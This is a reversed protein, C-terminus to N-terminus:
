GRVARMVARRELFSNSRVTRFCHDFGFLGVPVRFQRRFHTEWEKKKMKARRRSYSFKKLLCKTPVHFANDRTTVVFIEEFAGV